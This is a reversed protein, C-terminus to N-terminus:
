KRRKNEIEELNEEVILSLWRIKNMTPFSSKLFQIQSENFIPVNQNDIKIEFSIMTFEIFINMEIEEKEFTYYSEGNRSFYSFKYGKDLLFQFNKKVYKKNNREFEDFTSNLLLYFVFALIASIVFTIFSMWHFQNHAFSFSFCFIFFFLSAICSILFLIKYVTRKM